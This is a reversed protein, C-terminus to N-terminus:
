VFHSATCHHAQGPKAATSSAWSLLGLLAAIGSGAMLLKKGIWTEQLQMSYDGLLEEEESWQSMQWLETSALSTNDHLDKKVAEEALHKSVDEVSVAFNEGYQMPTRAAATGTMHPFPCERPFAYHLWQAFLRGHLPVKGGHTQAIRSLRSRLSDDLTAREDDGNTLNEAVQLVDAVSAVPAGIASEVYGM